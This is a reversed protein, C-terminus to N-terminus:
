NNGAATKHGMNRIAAISAEAVTRFPVGYRIAAARVDEYEAMANVIESGKRALKVKIDGFETGVQVVERAVFEREIERIRIGLTTTERYLLDTIQSRLTPECLISIMTAPRNKKM